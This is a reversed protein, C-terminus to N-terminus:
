HEEKIAKIEAKLEEIERQQMQIMKIMYPIFKFYDVSILPESMPNDDDANKVAELVKEEDYYEPINVVSPIINIVDEAIVGFQGKERGKDGFGEKYDFSKIEVDLIKKAEDETIDEINEKYARSSSAAAGIASRFNAASSVWYTQSGNKAITLGLQNNVSGGSTTKDYCQLVINTAGASNGYCNTRGILTSDSGIHYFAGASTNASLGNTSSTTLTWQTNRTQILAEGSKSVTLNGTMTDGSKSVKGSIDQHETLVKTDGSYLCGDTGVYATDHSYTQPNAGQSTAGILYIKSSTNSAGATNKTDTFVADSPVDVGLTHNNCANANDAFKAQHVVWGYQATTADSPLSSVTQMSFTITVGNDVRSGMLRHCVISGNSDNVSRYWGYIDWVGASVKKIYWHPYQNVEFTLGPDTDATDYFTVSLWTFREETGSIEFVIAGGVHTQNVTITALKFCSGSAGTWTAIGDSTRLPVKTNDTGSASIVNNTITINSGATLTGQKGNLLTDVESTTYAGVDSATSPISPKNKIYDVASSDAENWDSQVQAAPITPKNQLDDYDGSTAVTALDATDAKDSLLADVEDDSYTESKAYVDSANAKASLLTDAETKTYVSNTNAKNQLATDVETKNYYNAQLVATTTYDDLASTVYSQTAYDTLDIQAVKNEDVVSTGNVKVDDVLGGGGGGGSGENLLGTAKIKWKDQGNYMIRPATLYELLYTHMYQALAKYGAETPHIDDSSLYAPNSRIVNKMEELVRYGYLNGYQIYYNIATIVDAQYQNTTWGVPAIWLKANPYKQNAVTKFEAIAAQVGSLYGHDNYGGVVLIDTISAKDSITNDLANLLTLFQYDTKAFGYGGIASEFYGDWESGYWSVFYDLWSDITGGGGTIGVTYSDGIVIFKHGNLASM